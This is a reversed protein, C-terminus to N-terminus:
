CLSVYVCTYCESCVNAATKQVTAHTGTHLHTLIYIHECTEILLFLSVPWLCAQQARIILHLQTLPGSLGSDGPIIDCM